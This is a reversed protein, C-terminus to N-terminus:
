SRTYSANYNIASDLRRINKGVCSIVVINNGWKVRPMGSVEYPLLSSQKLENKRRNYLVVGVIIILNTDFIEMSYATNQARNDNLKTAERRASSKFVM